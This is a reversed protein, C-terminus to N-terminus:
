QLSIFFYPPEPFNFCDHLAFFHLRRTDVLLTFDIGFCVEEMLFPIRAVDEEETNSWPGLIVGFFFTENREGTVMM